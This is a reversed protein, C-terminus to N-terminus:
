ADALAADIAQKAQILVLDLPKTADIDVIPAGTFSLRSVDDVKTKLSSVRHDPKRAIATALDVNLRLVLTPVHSAMWEYHLRERRALLRTFASGREAAQALGLGDMPGPVALQPFRDALITIGRRRIALMRRFRRVRRMSFLYIILATFASPGGPDRAKGAKAAITKDLRKGVIPWRAIARGINGTQKGLHCFETPRRERMWALLEVGVTSKGSGDSGVIAILAAPAPGDNAPDTTTKM